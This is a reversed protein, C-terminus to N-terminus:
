NVLMFVRENIWQGITLFWHQGSYGCESSLWRFWAEVFQVGFLDRGGGGGWDNLAYPTPRKVM